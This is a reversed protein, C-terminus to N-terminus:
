RSDQFGSIKQYLQKTEMVSLLELQRPQVTTLIEKKSTINKKKISIEKLRNKAMFNVCLQQWM